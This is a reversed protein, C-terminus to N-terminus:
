IAIKRLHMEISSETMLIHRKNNFVVIFSYNFHIVVRFVYSKLYILKKLSFYAEHSFKLKYTIQYQVNWKEIFEIFM